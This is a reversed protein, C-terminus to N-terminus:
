EVGRWIGADGRLLQQRAGQVASVVVDKCEQWKRGAVQQQAAAWAGLLAHCLGAVDPVGEGSLQQEVAYMVGGGCGEHLGMLQELVEMFAGWHGAGAAAAAKASLTPCQCVSCRRCDVVQEGGGGVAAAAEAAADDPAPRDWPPPQQPPLTHTVLQKLRNTVRWRQQMLPFVEKYWASHLVRCLVAVVGGRTASDDLGQAQLLLQQVLSGAAAKGLVEMVVQLCAVGQKLGRAPSAAAATRLWASMAKVVGALVAAPAQQEISHLQRQRQRQLQLLPQQRRAEEEQQLQKYRECERRMMAPLLAQVGPRSLIAAMHLATPQSGNAVGVPSGAAMLAHAMRLGHEEGESESGFEAGILALHLPTADGSLRRMNTPTALLPVLAEHGRYVARHLTNAGQISWGTADRAGAGYLKDPDAGAALLVKVCATHGKEVAMQLPTTGKHTADVMSDGQGSAMAALLQQLVAFHNGNVAAHLVTAGQQAIVRPDAGAALLQQLSEMDGMFAAIHLPTCGHENRAEVDAGAKLLLQVMKPSRKRCAVHLATGGRLGPASVAAAAAADRLLCKVVGIHNHTVAVHLAMWGGSSQTSPAGSRLLLRVVPEHGGRAALCLPTVGASTVATLSAKARLLVVVVDLHGNEAAYHLASYGKACSTYVPAGTALLLLAANHKGNMCAEHLPTIDCYGGGDVPLVNAGAGLLLKMLPMDGRGAAAHLPTQGKHNINNAGARAAVLVAAVDMHGKVAALYLPTNGDTTVADVYAVKSLEKVADVHGNEAAAHLPTRLDAEHVQHPSAGQQLLELVQCQLGCGAADFLKRDKEAQQADFMYMDAEQSDVDYMAM